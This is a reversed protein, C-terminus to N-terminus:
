EAQYPEIEEPNNAKFRRKPYRSVSLRHSTDRLMSCLCCSTGYVLEICFSGNFSRIPLANPKPGVPQPNSDELLGPLSM